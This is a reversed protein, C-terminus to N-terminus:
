ACTGLVFAERLSSGVCSCEKEKKRVSWDCRHMLIKYSSFVSRLTSEGVSNELVSDLATKWVPCSFGRM